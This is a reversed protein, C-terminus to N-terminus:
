KVDGGTQQFGIVKAAVPSEKLRGVYDSDRAFGSLMGATIVNKSINATLVSYLIDNAMKRITIYGNFNRGATIEELSDALLKRAGASLSFGHQAIYKEEIMGALKGPEPFKLTVTEIRMYSSLAAELTGIGRRDSSYVCFVTLLKDNKMRLYDLLTHFHSEGTHPMWEGIDICAVGRFYRHHGAIETIVNNLRTLETFDSDPNVYSLLFEFFKINGTFEFLKAEYLYDSLASLRTTVGVGRKAVWLYNPLAIGSISYKECNQQFTRLRKALTKLDDEGDLEMIAQYYKDTNESLKM